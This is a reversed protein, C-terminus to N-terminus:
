STEDNLSSFGLWTHQGVLMSKLASYSLAIQMSNIEPWLKEMWVDQRQEIRYVEASNSTELNWRAECRLEVPEQAAIQNEHVRDGGVGEVLVKV